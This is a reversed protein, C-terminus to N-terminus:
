QEHRRDPQSNLNISAWGLLSDELLLQPSAPGDAARITEMVRALQDLVGRPDLDAVMAALQERQDPNMVYPPDGTAKLRAMDALWAYLWYLSERLGFKLWAEAIRVPDGQGQALSRLDGLMAERQGPDGEQALKLAALPAGGTLALLLDIDMSRAEGLAQRLWDTVLARHEARPQFVLQQCRSLITPPLRAPRATVLMLLSAAPPEELTKLLANAANRNLKDAGHIIIIKYGDYHTKLGMYDVLDRVQDITIETKDKKTKENIGLRCTRLDPHTGAQMLICASCAGCALGESTPQRCLLARGLMQAFRFKGMGDHGCLLLAHPLRDGERMRAIRAWAEAHWPLLGALEASTAEAM